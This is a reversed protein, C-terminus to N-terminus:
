GHVIEYRHFSGPQDAVYLVDVVRDADSHALSSLPEVFGVHIVHFYLDTRRLGRLAMAGGDAGGPERDLRSM